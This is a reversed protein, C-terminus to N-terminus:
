RVLGEREVIEALLERFGPGVDPRELALEVLTRLYELKTGTDFRGETFTFGLIQDRQLLLTMADTIQIEGATGPPTRDIIDF